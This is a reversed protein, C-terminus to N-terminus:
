GDGIGAGAAGTCGQEVEQLLREVAGTVEDDRLAEAGVDGAEIRRVTADVVSVDAALFEPGTRVLADVLDRSAVANTTDVATALRVVDSCWRINDVQEQMERAQDVLEGAQEQMDRAQGLAEDAASCGLLLLGLLLPTVTRTRM